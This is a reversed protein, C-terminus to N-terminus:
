SELEAVLRILMEGIAQPERKCEHSDGYIYAGRRNARAPSLSVLRRSPAAISIDIASKAFSTWSRAGVFDLFGQLHDPEPIGDIEQFEDLCRLVAEGLVSASTNRDFRLMPQASVRGHDTMMQSILFVTDTTVYAAVTPVAAM